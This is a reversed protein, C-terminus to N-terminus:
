TPPEPAQEAVGKAIDRLKLNMRQSAATLMAFAEEDSVGARAMLIGKARGIVDRNEEAFSIGAFECADLTDVALHVIRDLTCWRSPQTCLKPAALRDNRGHAPPQTPTGVPSIVPPPGVEGGTSAAGEDGHQLM